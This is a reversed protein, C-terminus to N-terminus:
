RCYFHVKVGLEDFESFQVCKLDKRGEEQGSQPGRCNAFFFSRIIILLDDFRDLVVTVKHQRVADISVCNEVTRVEFDKDNGRDMMASAQQDKGMEDDMKM